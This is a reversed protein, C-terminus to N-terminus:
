CIRFLKQMSLNINELLLITMFPLENIMVAANVEGEFCVRAELKVDQISDYLNIRLLVDMYIEM